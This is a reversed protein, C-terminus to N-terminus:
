ISTRLGALSMGFTRLSVRSGLPLSAIQGAAYAGMKAAVPASKLHVASGSLDVLILLDGAFAVPAAFLFVAVIMCLFKIM